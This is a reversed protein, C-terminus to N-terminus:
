AEKSRLKQTLNNCCSVFNWKSFILQRKFHRKVVDWRRLPFLPYFTYKKICKWVIKTILHHGQMYVGTALYHLPGQLGSEPVFGVPWSRVRSVEDHPVAPRSCGQACQSTDHLLVEVFQRDRPRSSSAGIGPAIPMAAGPPEPNQGYLSPLTYGYQFSTLLRSGQLITKREKFNTCLNNLWSIKNPPDVSGKVFSRISFNEIIKCGM